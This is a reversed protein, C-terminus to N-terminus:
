RDYLCPDKKDNKLFQGLGRPKSIKDTNLLLNPFYDFLFLHIELKRCLTDLIVDDYLKIDNSKLNFSLVDM